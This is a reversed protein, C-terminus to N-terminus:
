EFFGPLLEYPHARSLLNLYTAREIGAPRAEELEKRLEDRVSEFPVEEIGVVEFLYLKDGDLQPLTLGGLPTLLLNLRIEDSWDEFVFGGPARGNLRASEVDDSYRQALAGFDEGDEVRLSLEELLAFDEAGADTVRRMFARDGEGDKRPEVDITRRIYRADIRRGNEGYRGYWESKVVAEDIVRDKMLLDEVQLEMRVREGVEKRWQAETRGRKALGEVWETINGLHGITIQRDREVDLREEIQERTVEIGNNAARRAVVRRDRFRNLLPEGQTQRLWREVEDARIERQAIRGVVPNARQREETWDSLDVLVELPYKARLEVLRQAVEDEEPGREILVETLEDRVSEFPTENISIVKLLWVGGRTRLPQTIGGVPLELIADLAGGGWGVVDFYELFRGGRGRSAADDSHELVMAQFDAGEVLQQRLVALEESAIAALENGRQIFEQRNLRGASQDVVVERQLGAFQIRKGEPGHLLEWERRLKQEPVVRGVRTVADGLLWTWANWRADSRFGEETRSSRRLEAIWPEPDGGFAGNLRVDIIEQVRPEILGRDPTVGLAEAEVEWRVLDAYNPLGVVGRNRLLWTGYELASANVTERGGGPAEIEFRVRPPAQLLASGAAEAGPDAQETAAPAASAEQTAPSEQAGAFPSLLAPLLLPAALGLARIAPASM